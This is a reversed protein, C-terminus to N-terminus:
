SHKQKSRMPKKIGRNSLELRVRETIYLSFLTLRLPKAGRAPPDARLQTCGSSTPVARRDSEPQTRRINTNSLLWAERLLQEALLMAQTEARDRASYARPDIRPHITGILTVVGGTEPPESVPSSLVCVLFTRHPSTCFGLLIEQSRSRM